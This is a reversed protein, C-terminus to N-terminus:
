RARPVVPQRARFALFRLALRYMPHQLERFMETLAEREGDAARRAVDDLDLQADADRPCRCDGQM